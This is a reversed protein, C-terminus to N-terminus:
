GKRFLLLGVAAARAFGTLQYGQAFAAEALARVQYRWARASAMNQEKLAAFDSPIQVLFADGHPAAPAAHPDPNLLPGQAQLEAASLKPATGNSRAVVREDHLWWEVLFRDTPLEGHPEEPEPGYINRIYTRSIAGLHALNLNANRSLLPDFTWTILDLGQALVHERQAWKLRAGLGSDRYAPLVAAMHSAHKLRGDSGRGLFGFVFGVLPGSSQALDFAGLVVGGNRQITLLMHDAVTNFGGWVTEQLQMCAAYESLSHILRIEITM